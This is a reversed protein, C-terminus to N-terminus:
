LSNVGVFIDRVSRDDDSSVTRVRLTHWQGGRTKEQRKQLSYSTKSPLFFDDRDDRDTALQHQMEPV